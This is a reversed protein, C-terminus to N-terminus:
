RNLEQATRTQLLPRGTAAAKQCQHLLENAVWLLLQWCCECVWCCCCCAGCCLLLLLLLLLLPQPGGTCACSFHREDDRQILL